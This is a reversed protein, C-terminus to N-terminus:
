ELGDVRFIAYVFPSDDSLSNCEIRPRTQTREGAYDLSRLQTWVQGPVQMHLSASESAALTEGSGGKM